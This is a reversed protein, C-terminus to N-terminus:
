FLKKITRPNDSKRISVISHLTKGPPAKAKHKTASVVQWPSTKPDAQQQSRDTPTSVATTETKAQPSQPLPPLPTAARALAQDQVKASSAIAQCMRERHQNGIVDEFKTTPQPRITDETIGPREIQPPSLSNTALQSREQGTPDNQEHEYHEHTPDQSDVTGYSQTDQSTEDAQVTLVTSEQTHKGAPAAKDDWTNDKDNGSGEGSIM